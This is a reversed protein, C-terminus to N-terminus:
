RRIYPLFIPYKDGVIITSDTFPGQNGDRDKIAVRWYYIVDMQYIKTPTFQTNITVISDYTPAFTSFKSVEFVYTAAGDVASWIFTPTQDVPESIPSLLTTIPYQKTFTAYPVNYPGRRGNGDIIALHWYYSGDKYGKTPTWCNNFTEVSDYIQSFNPDLSVELRYKWATLVPNEQSDYGVLPEWCFTPAYHEVSQDPTLKTPVPLSLSFQQVESWDNIVSGYRIIHVRWYYLAPPLTNTPTFSTLPTVQNIVTSGFNPDTSVQLRYTSAGEAMDWSFTPTAFTVSTQLNLPTFGLRRFSWGSVWAGFTATEGLMWYRPQVRWYYINDGVLDDLMTSNNEGFWPATSTMTFEAVLNTYGPDLHVELKSGAWPSSPNSGTPWDWYFPQLSALISTDANPDGANINLPYIMNMRESVASFRSLEGTGPIQPDSPVSDVAVKSSTDMSVLMVSARSTVQSMGIAGNPIRLEVYGEASNIEAGIDIFRQGFNWNTGNWAYVWTNEEDMGSATNDVYIVYEPRHADITSMSYDREPPYTGGSGDISNLDLYIIYTLNAPTTQANFGFFWDTSSQSAYLTSLDYAGSADSVPDDGILLQNPPDAISRDFRWESQSAIQFRRVESWNSWDADVFGRARWYFTGYDTRNLSRQVLSYTPSYAPISVIESIEFTSFDPTRSIEVQYQSAGALPWWELLPTAEVSDQGHAPRLLEPAEGSTPDLSLNNNFRSRWIQSWWILGTGPNTLCNGGMSDLPCVRWYYDQDIVTPFDDSSIPTASTNETDCEWELSSFYPTKAVQIRYANISVGGVPTPNMVRHWIFIPYAVTRDEVPNLNYDDYYVPDNPIYYYLPYVQIPALSTTSSQFEFVSSTMGLEGGGDIPTVRWYYYESGIYKKQPTYTTNATLFSEILPTTFSPEDDIDIRYQAAGPVPTWSYLPYLGTQYLNTPTLLQPQLYWQKQVYWTESWQGVADGSEVRVHWCYRKDNPFTDTPTYSTQRTNIITGINFDCTEDSTYELRYHEAGEIATWKFTPTFTPYSWNAPELLTPIMSGYGYALIFTNIGSTTGLHDANDMPVVRWYYTGNELRNAPQHNTSLTDKTYVPTGFGNYSSAIQFRYKAAGTVRGWSFVPADFFTITAGDNPSILEPKNDVEAWTKVFRRIESWEGVPAPEEVRVRWYWDGDALLHSGSSPTFSTNPTTINITIPTNFGTESDVQLRYKTASAVTEWSFSPVGLPPDSLTTTIADYDPYILQPVDMAYANKTTFPFILSSIIVTISIIYLLMFKNGPQKNRPHM